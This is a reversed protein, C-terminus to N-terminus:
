IAPKPSADLVILALQDASVERIRLPLVREYYLAWRIAPGVWQHHGIIAFPNRLCDPFKLPRWLAPEQIVQAFGMALHLVPVTPRWIREHHDKYRAADEDREPVKRSAYWDSGLTEVRQGGQLRSTLAFGYRLSPIPQNETCLALAIAAADLRKDIKAFARRLTKALREREFGRGALSGRAYRPMDRASASGQEIAGRTLAVRVVSRFRDFECGNPDPYALAGLYAAVNVLPDIHVYNPGVPDSPSSLDARFTVALRRRTARKRKAVKKRKRGAM